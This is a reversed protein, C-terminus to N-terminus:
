PQPDYFHFHRIVFSSVRLFGSHRIQMEDNTMRESKPNRFEHKLSSRPTKAGEIGARRSCFKGQALHKAPANIFKIFFGRTTENTRTNPDATGSPRAIDIMSSASWAALREHSTALMIAANGNSKVESVAFAAAPIIKESCTRFSTNPNSHFLSVFTSHRIPVQDNTMREPKPDRFEDNM